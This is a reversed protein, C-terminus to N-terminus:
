TKKKRYPLKVEVASKGDTGATVSVEYGPEMRDDKLGKKSVGGQPGIFKTEKSVSFTRDKGDKLTIVFESKKIDVLKVKGAVADKKDQAQLGVIGLAVVLFCSGVIRSLM